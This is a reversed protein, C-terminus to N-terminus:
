ISPNNKDEELDKIKNKLEIMKLERNVSTKYFIELQRNKEKLEDFSKQVENKKNQLEKTRAMILSDLNENVEEYQKNKKEAFNLATKIIGATAFLAAMELATLSLHSNFDVLGHMNFHTSFYFYFNLSSVLLIVISAQPFTGYLPSSVATLFFLLFRIPSDYGGTLTIIVAMMVLYALSDMVFQIERSFLNKRKLLDSFLFYVGLILFAYNIEKHFSPLFNDWEMVVTAIVLITAYGSMWFFEVRYPAIKFFNVFENRIKQELNLGPFLQNFKNKFSNKAPM